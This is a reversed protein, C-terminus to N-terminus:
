DLRRLIGPQSNIFRGAKEFFVVSLQEGDIANILAFVSRREPEINELRIQGRKIESILFRDGLGDQGRYGPPDGWIVWVEEHKAIKQGFSFSVLPWPIERRLPNEIDYFPAGDRLIEGKWKSNALCDLPPFLENHQILVYACCMAALALALITTVVNRRRWSRGHFDPPTKRLHEEVKNMLQTIAQEIRPQSSLQSNTLKAVEEILQSVEGRDRISVASTYELSGPPKVDDSEIALLAIVTKNQGWAAGLEFPVWGSRSSSSTILGVSITAELIDRRLAPEVYAGKGLKSGPTSTCRIESETIGIAHQLCHVLASALDADAQSHSVFLKLAM